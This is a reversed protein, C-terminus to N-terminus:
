QVFIYKRHINPPAVVKSNRLGTILQYFQSTSVEGIFRSEGTWTRVAQRQMLVNQEACPAPLATSTWRIATTPLSSPMPTWIEDLPGTAVSARASLPGSRSTM